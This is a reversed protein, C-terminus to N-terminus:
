EQSTWTEEIVELFTAVDTALRTLTEIAEEVSKMPPSKAGLRSYDGSGLAVAQLTKDTADLQGQIRVSITGKSSKRVMGVFRSKSTGSWDIGKVKQAITERDPLAVEEVSGDLQGVNLSIQVAESRSAVDEAAQNQPEITEGACGCAVGLLALLIMRTIQNM